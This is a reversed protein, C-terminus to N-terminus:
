DFLPIKAPAINKRLKTLRNQFSKFTTTKERGDRARWIIVPAEPDDRDIELIVRGCDIEEVKALMDMATARPPPAALASVMLQALADQRPKKPGDIFSQGHEAAPLLVTMVAGHQIDQALSLSRLGDEPHGWNFSTIAIKALTGATEVASTAEISHAARPGFRKGWEVLERARRQDSALRQEVKENCESNEAMGCM